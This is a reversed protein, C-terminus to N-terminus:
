IEPSFFSLYLPIVSSAAPTKFARKVRDVSKGAANRAPGIVQVSSSNGRSLLEKDSEKPVQPDVSWSPRRASLIKIERRLDVTCSGRHGWTLERCMQHYVDPELSGDKGSARKPTALLGCHPLVERTRGAFGQRGTM